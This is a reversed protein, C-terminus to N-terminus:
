SRARGRARPARGRLPAREDCKTVWNQGHPADSATLAWTCGVWHFCMIMMLLMSTPKIRLAADDVQRASRRRTSRAAASSPSRSRSSRSSARPACWAPRTAAAARSACTSRSRSPRTSCSTRASTGEDAPMTVHGHDDIIGTRFNVVIDLWFFADVFLEWNYWPRSEEKLEVEFGIIYPVAVIIYMLLAFTLLMILIKAKSEPHVVTEEAALPALWEKADLDQGPKGIWERVHRRWAM